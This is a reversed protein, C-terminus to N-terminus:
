GRVQVGDPVCSGHARRLPSGRTNCCASDPDAEDTQTNRRRPSRCRLGKGEILTGSHLGHNNPFFPTSLQSPKRKTYAQSM